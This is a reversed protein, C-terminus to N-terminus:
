SHSHQPKHIESHASRRTDSGRKLSKGALAQVDKLTPSARVWVPTTSKSAARRQGSPSTRTYSGSIRYEHFPSTESAKGPGRHRDRQNISDAGDLIVFQRGQRALFYGMALGAQGAGVVVVDYRERTREVSLRMDRENLKM